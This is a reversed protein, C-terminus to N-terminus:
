HRVKIVSGLHNQQIIVDTLESTNVHAKLFLQLFRTVMVITLHDNELCKTTYKSYSFNLKTLHKSAVATVQQLLKKIGNFDNDSITHAEFDVM